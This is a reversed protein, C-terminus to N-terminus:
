LQYLMLYVVVGTVSVYVWIPWTYRAIHRHKVFQKKTGRWLTILALPPVAAALIVHSALIVYYIIRLAGDGEYPRTPESYHYILYSMLFLVSISFATWMMARHARWRKHRIFYFGVLLFVGATGNLLANLTPLDSTQLM